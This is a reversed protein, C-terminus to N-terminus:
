YGCRRRRRVYKKMIIRLAYLSLALVFLGYYMLVTNPIDVKETFRSAVSTVSWHRAPWVGTYEVIASPYETKTKAWPFSFHNTIKGQSEVRAKKLQGSVLKYAVEANTIEKPIGSIKMVDAWVTLTGDKLYVQREARCARPFMTIFCMMMAGVFVALWVFKVVKLNM